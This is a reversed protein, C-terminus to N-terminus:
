VVFSDLDVWRQQKSYAQLLRCWFYVTGVFAHVMWGFWSSIICRENCLFASVDMM